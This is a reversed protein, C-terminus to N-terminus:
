AAKRWEALRSRNPPYGRPQYTLSHEDYTVAVIGTVGERQKDIIIEDEGTWAGTVKDKPRYLLLVNHADQELNGSERLDQITPRRNPDADGRRYGEPYKRPRQQRESLLCPLENASPM